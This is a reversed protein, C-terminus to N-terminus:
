SASTKLSAQISALQANNLTYKRMIFAVFLSGFAPIITFSLLIGQQTDLSQMTQAQYNYFSLLWGAIAGGLAVGMKIFFIVGSYVLGTIRVGTKHHGYDITDAMKAWLLPTAMDLFFKWLIFAAFALTINDPSIFYSAICIGAAILQLSIYAKIKCFRKALPQACACGVMSAFVGLTMFSTILDEQGLYYKVYYVGLTLRLVQGTLLFLAAACLVRWQDNKILTKLSKFLSLNQEPPQEVREKTGFFCLLFLVLGLLSMATMTYQYGKANDGQGFYEVMPMTCGAVIVGGLMGFVFRYSQVSVREKVDSTLVGGLACYPINIATYAVMLLTYTTFAYIIKDTGELEPTTFALISILAFPLALWLLYPRFHGFRSKTKDALNGMVPDTIADFLRVVLFLTGVVAPSLGVVDTYYLMLFMMVTQFIINSATDGLGYAIKEKVSIM